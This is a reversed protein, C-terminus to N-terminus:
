WTPSDSVSTPSNTPASRSSNTMALLYVRLGEAAPLRAEVPLLRLVMICDDLGAQLPQVGVPDVQVPHVHGSPM